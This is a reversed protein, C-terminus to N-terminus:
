QEKRDFITEIYRFDDTVAALDITDDHSSIHLYQTQDSERPFEYYSWVDEFNPEGFRAKFETFSNSHELFHVVEEINLPPTANTYKYPYQYICRVEEDLTQEAYVALGPSEVHTKDEARFICYEDATYFDIQTIGIQDKDFTNVYMLNLYFWYYTDGCRVPFTSFVTKYTNGHDASSEGGVLGNWGIEDIPGEYVSLMKHIKAKLDANQEKAAPSFLNYIADTDKSDLAQFLATLTDGFAKQEASTDFRSAGCSVFSLLFSLATLICLLRKM